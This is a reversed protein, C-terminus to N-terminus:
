FPISPCMECLTPVSDLASRKGKLQMERQVIRLLICNELRRNSRTQLPNIIHSSVSIFKTTFDYTASHCICNCPHFIYSLSYLFLLLDFHGFLKFLSSLCAIICKLFDYNYENILKLKIITFPYSSFKRYEKM